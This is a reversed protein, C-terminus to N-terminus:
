GTKYKKEIELVKQPALQYATERTIYRIRHRCNWRGRDIRPTYPIGSNKGILTPDKPWETDAEVDAFVKGAKAICFDRSDKIIGGVYIFWHLDLRERFQENKIEAAQNFLDYAYTRWFGTVIGEAKETGRIYGKVTVGVQALTAGRRISALLINKLSQRIQSARYIEWMLSGKTIEGSATVGLAALLFSNDNAVDKLDKEDAQGEYMAATMEAMALIDSVFNATLDKLNGDAWSDFVGDVASILVLNKANRLVKGDKTKLRAVIDSLVLDYLEREADTLRRGLAAQRSDIAETILDAPASLKEFLQPM